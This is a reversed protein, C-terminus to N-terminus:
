APQTPAACVRKFGAAAFAIMRPELAAVDMARCVGNSLRDIRDTQALALMLAGSLSYYAWYLDADQAHPLARRILAILREVVPDFARTMVAGGWEHNHAAQAILILYNRWGDDGAALKALVPRLFAAIAGEVTVADGADREYASLAALREANVVDARRAFVADFLAQKTTFYYHIMGTTAAAAQAIARTTVGDFGHKAFLAEAVDLIRGRLDAEALAAAPRGPRPGPPRKARASPASRATATSM